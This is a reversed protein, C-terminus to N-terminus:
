FFLAKVILAGVGIILIWPLAALVVAAFAMIGVLIFGFVAEIATFNNRAV